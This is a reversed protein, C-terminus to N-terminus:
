RKLINRIYQQKYTKYNQAIDDKALEYLTKLPLEPMNEKKTPRTYLRDKHPKGHTCDYRVIQHQAEDIQSIQIVQFRKVEGKDTEIVVRMEDEESLLRTFDIKKTM